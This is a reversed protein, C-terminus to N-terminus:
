LKKHVVIANNDVIITGYDDFSEGRYRVSGNLKINWPAIFRDIILQLWAVYDYFKETGNWEIGKNDETPVWDCWFGPFGEFAQLDGGHREESLRKLITSQEITLEKDLDFRGEFDTTYGM